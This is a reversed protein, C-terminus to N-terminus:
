PQACATIDGEQCRRVREQWERLERQRKAEVEAKQREYEQQARAYADADAKKKAEYERMKREYEAERAKERAEAEANKRNVEANLNQAERSGEAPERSYTYSGTTNSGSDNLRGTKPDVTLTCAGSREQWGGGASDISVAVCTATWRCAGAPKISQYRYAGPRWRPDPHAEWVGAGGDKFNMGRVSLRAGDPRHWTGEIDGDSCTQVPAPPEGRTWPASEGLGEVTLARAGPAVSVVGSWPTSIGSGYVYGTAKYRCAGGAPGAIPAGLQFARLMPHPWDPRRDTPARRLTREFDGSVGNKGAAVTLSVGWGAYEKGKNTWRGALAAPDCSGVKKVPPPAAKLLPATIEIDRVHTAMGFLYSSMGGKTGEYEDCKVQAPDIRVPLGSNSVVDQLIAAAGNCSMENWAEGEFGFKGPDSNGVQKRAKATVIVKLPKDPSTSLWVTLYTEAGSYPKLTTDYHDWGCTVEGSLDLPKKGPEGTRADKCPGYGDSHFKSIGPWWGPAAVQAVAPISGLLAAAIVAILGPRLAM